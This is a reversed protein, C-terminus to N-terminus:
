NEEIPFNTLIKWYQPWLVNGFRDKWITIIAYEHKHEHLCGIDHNGHISDYVEVFVGIPPNWARCRVWSM